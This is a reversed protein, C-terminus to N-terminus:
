PKADSLEVKAKERAAMWARYQPQQTLAIWRPNDLFTQPATKGPYFNFGWHQPTLARDYWDMAQDVAATHSLMFGVDAVDGADAPNHALVANVFAVAAKPGASHLIVFFQCHTQLPIPIGPKSLADAVAKAEAIRNLSALSVCKYEKTVPDDPHLVLAENAAAIADEFRADAFDGNTVSAWAAYSFPDLRAWERAYDTGEPLNFDFSATALGQAGIATRAATRKLTVANRIVGDWDWKEGAIEIGVVLAQPNEPDIALARKLARHIEDDLETSDEITHLANALSAQGDAFDPAAAAVKRFLTVARNLADRSTPTQGESLRQDFYFQAQLYDRYIAPDIQAPEPIRSKVPTGTLAPALAKAIARAIDAQVALIDSLSRDYSQSWLQYGDAANVLSAEIHLHSGDSQVSGELVARVNLKEAIARIDQEKGEFFFSSTRAAVHLAPNRALLGILESSIGESFYRQRPDGSMNDFPLVAVSRPSATLTQEAAERPASSWHLALEGLSLVAVLGILGLFIAERGKLSPRVGERAEDKNLLWGAILALPFGVITAVILWRLSWPPADFAPLAISAAQVLLWGVVAYTAAIRDLQRARIQELWREIWAGM